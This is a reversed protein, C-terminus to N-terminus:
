KSQFTLFFTYLYKLNVSFIPECLKQSCKLCHHQLIPCPVSPIYCIDTPIASGALLIFSTVGSATQRKFFTGTNIMKTKLTQSKVLHFTNTKGNQKIINKHM